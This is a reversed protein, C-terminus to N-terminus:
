FGLQLSVYAGNQEGQRAVRGLDVFAITTSVNKTLFYAAFFDFANDERAFGLNDPKTRLEAGIALQRSLLLAM